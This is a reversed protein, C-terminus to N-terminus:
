LMGARAAALASSETCADTRSTVSDIAAAAITFTLLWRQVDEQLQRALVRLPLLRLGHRLGHLQSSVHQGAVLVCKHLWVRPVPVNGRSGPVAARVAAITFILLWRQVDGQLQRALVHLPRPGHLQRSVHQGAVLVCKGLWGRPM